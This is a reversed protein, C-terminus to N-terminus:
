ADLRILSPFIEGERLEILGCTTHRFLGRPESTSGPNMFVQRGQAFVEPIHTHGFLTIDYGNKVANKILPRMSSRVGFFHGHTLFIKRGGIEVILESPSKGSFDCNGGVTYVPIDMIAELFQVDQVGDGLHMLCDIRGLVSLARRVMAQNRHTDSIVGIRILNAEQAKM